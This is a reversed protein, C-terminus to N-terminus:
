KGPGWFDRDGPWHGNPLDNRGCESCMRLGVLDGAVAPQTATHPCNGNARAHDQERSLAELGATEYDADGYFFDDPQPNTPHVM